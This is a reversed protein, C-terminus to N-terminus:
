PRVIFEVADSLSTTRNSTSWPDSYWLQAQVTAGAGPNKRPRPCTACWLANWDQAFSGDCAGPTGNKPRLGGRIVPPVVCLYSTGNGWSNAQRGHVGLFFLGYKSGEVESAFLDFGSPASASPIGSASIFAQCGSASTGATCYSVTTEARWSSVIPANENLARACDSPSSSGEPVGLPQGAYTVNPNAFYPIRQASSGALDLAMITSWADDSTRHGYAYPYSPTNKTNPRDHDLGFNHGFEHAMAYTGTACDKSVLNFAWPAFAAAAPAGMNYSRGCKTNSDVVVSVADAGYVDRWLHVEDMHGDTASQLRELDTKMDGTEVYAVKESYVLRLELNALSNAFAVNTELLALEILAQVAARGGLSDEADQTWAVIVDVVVPDGSSAALVRPRPADLAPSARHQAGDCSPVARSDCQSIAVRDAGPTWFRYLVGHERVVGAVAGERIAFAAYGSPDGDLQGFWTTGRGERSRRELRATTTRGDFLEIAIRDHALRRSLESVCLDLERARLATSDASLARQAHIPGALLVLAVAAARCTTSPM